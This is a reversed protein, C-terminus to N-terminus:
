YPECEHFVRGRWLSIEMIQEHVHSLTSPEIMKYFFMSVSCFTRSAALSTNEWFRQKGPTQRIALLTTLLLLNEVIYHSEWSIKHETDSLTFNNASFTELFRLRWSEPMEKGPKGELVSRFCCFIWKVGLYTVVTMALRSEDFADLGWQIGTTTKFFHSGSSEYMSLQVRRYMNSPTKNDLNISTRM